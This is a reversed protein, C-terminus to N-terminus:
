LVQTRDGAGGGNQASPRRIEGNPQRAEETMARFAAVGEDASALVRVGQGEACFFQKLNELRAGELAVAFRPHIVRGVSVEVNVISTTWAM